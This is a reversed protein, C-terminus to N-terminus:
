PYYGAAVREDRSPEAFKLIRLKMAMSCPEHSGPLHSAAPRADGPMIAAMTAAMSESAEAQGEM